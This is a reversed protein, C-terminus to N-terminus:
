AFVVRFLQLAVGAGQRFANKPGKRFIEAMDPFEAQIENVLVGNRGVGYQKVGPRGYNKQGKDETKENKFPRALKVARAGGERSKKKVGIAGIYQGM